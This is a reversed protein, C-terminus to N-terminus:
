SIYCMPFIDNMGEEKRYPALPMFVVRPRSGEARTEM